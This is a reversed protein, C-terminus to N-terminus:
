RSFGGSIPDSRLWSLKSGSAAERLLALAMLKTTAVM